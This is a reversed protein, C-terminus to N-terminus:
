MILIHVFIHIGGNDKLPQFDQNLSEFQLQFYVLPETNTEQTTTSDEGGGWVTGQHPGEPGAPRTKWTQQSGRRRTGARQTGSHDLLFNEPHEEEHPVLAFVGSRKKM